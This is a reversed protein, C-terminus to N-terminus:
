GNDANTNEREKDKLYPVIWKEYCEIFTKKDMVKESKYIGVGVEPMPILRVVYDGNLSFGISNDM